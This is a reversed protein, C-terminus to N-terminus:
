NTIGTNIIQLYFGGGTIGFGILTTNMGAVLDAFPCIKGANGSLFYPEGNLAAATSGITFGPDISAYTVIQGTGPASCCAIGVAKNLPAVGNSQAKVIKGTSDLAVVDGALIAGGSLGKLTNVNAAPFVETPSIALDAM